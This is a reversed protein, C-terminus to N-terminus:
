VHLVMAKQTYLYLYQAYYPKIPTSKISTTSNISIVARTDHLSKTLRQWINTLPRRSDIVFIARFTIGSRQYLVVLNLFIMFPLDRRLTFKYDLFTDVFVTKVECFLM